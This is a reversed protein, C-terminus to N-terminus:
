HFRNKTYPHTFSSASSDSSYFPLVNDGFQQESDEYYETDNNAFNSTVSFGDEVSLENIQNDEFSSVNESLNGGSLNFFAEQVGDSIASTELNGGALNKIQNQNENEKDLKSNVAEISEVALRLEELESLESLEKFGNVPNSQDQNQDQIENNVNNGGNQQQQQHKAIVKRKYDELFSTVDYKKYKNTRPKFNKKGGQQDLKQKKQQQKEQKLKSFERLIDRRFDDLKQEDMITTVQGSGSMTNSVSDMGEKLSEVASRLADDTIEPKDEPPTAKGFIGGM